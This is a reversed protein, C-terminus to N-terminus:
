RLKAKAEADAILQDRKTSATKVLTNGKDDAEKELRTAKKDAEKELKKAAEKAAAEAIPNNAEKVLKQGSTKAEARIKDAGKKAEARLANAQKEAEAVLKDGQVRAAAVLDDVVAGVAEKVQEVAAEVAGLKLSVKPDAYAGTILVTVDANEGVQGGLLSTGALAKTPVKMALALDLTEDLVGASGSLTAPLGGLKSTFPKLLAKGDNLEYWVESGDLELRQFKADKLQEGIKAFSEPMFGVGRTRIQGKSALVSLDPTGDRRLRTKMSFISDFKGSAGKAIPLMQALSTFTAVTRSLEFDLADINFDLDAKEATPAAYTGSITVHGGLLDLKMQDLRVAGDRVLLTGRVNDFQVGNTLVEDMKIKLSLDLNTPVTVIASDAPEGGAAPEDDGEFPALDLHKSKADLTGVLTGDALFYPVLNDITGTAQLDSDDYRLKLDNVVAQKPTIRLDFADILMDVALDDSHYRVGAMKVLGEARVADVNHGEFDSMRGGIDLDVDVVGDYDTGEMPWARKLAALDVRGKVQLDVLPDTMPHRLKLAGGIPTGDISMRFPAIDVEVLDTAGEPHRVRLDAAIQDVAAPLDPYKFRGDKVQIALDFAPLHDGESHYAGKVTGALSFSGGADVNAFDGAYASPVLSLATKFTTDLGALALDVDWGLDTPLLTGTLSVPLENVVAKTDVFGIKGTAQEYEVVGDATWRTDRLMAVGGSKASLAAITAHTDFRVADQTVDGRGTLDLDRLEAWTAGQRDDYVLSLGDIEVHDLRVQYASAEGGDDAWLDYNARGEGDVVVHFAPDVLGLSRVEIPGSGLLSWVDLGARLQGIRALEVGEFPAVGTIVLDDVRLEFAGTAGFPRLGAGGISVDADIQAELQETVLALARGEILKWGVIGGVVLAATLGGAAVGVFVIKKRMIGAMGAQGLPRGIEAHM